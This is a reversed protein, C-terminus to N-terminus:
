FAEGLCVVKYIIQIMLNEIHTKGVYHRIPIKWKHRKYLQIYRKAYYVILTFNLKKKEM